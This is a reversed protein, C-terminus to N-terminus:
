DDPRVGEDGALRDLISRLVAREDEDLPAFLTERVRSAVIEAEALKAAGARTLTHDIRRGTGPTREILGQALLRGALTGFAQDTQFTAQALAHASAGPMRNVARMADWQVVTTGVASLATELARHQRYQAQKIARGLYELEESM